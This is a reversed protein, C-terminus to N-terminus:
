AQQTPKRANKNFRISVITRQESHQSQLSLALFGNRSRSCAFRDANSSGLISFM